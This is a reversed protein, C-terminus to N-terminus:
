RNIKNPFTSDMLIRLEKFYHLSKGPFIYRLQNFHTFVWKLRLVVLHLRGVVSVFYSM